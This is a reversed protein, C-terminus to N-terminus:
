ITGGHIETGKIASEDTLVNISTITVVTTLVSKVLYQGDNGPTTANEIIITDGAKIGTAEPVGTITDESAGGNVFAMLPTDVDTYHKYFYAIDGNVVMGGDYPYIAGVSGAGPSAKVVQFSSNPDNALDCTMFDTKDLYFRIDTLKDQSKWMEALYRQGENDIALNGAYAIDGYSKEGAFKRTIKRFEKAELSTSTFEPLTLSNLGGITVQDASGYKAVIAADNAIEYEPTAVESM